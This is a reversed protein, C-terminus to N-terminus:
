QIEEISKIKTGPYLSTAAAAVAAIMASDTTDIKQPFILIILRMVVALVTLLIFVAIFASICIILLEPSGM